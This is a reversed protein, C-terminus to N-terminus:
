KAIKKKKIMKYFNDNKKIEGKIITNKKNKM